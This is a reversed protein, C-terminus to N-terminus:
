IVIMNVLLITFYMLSHLVEFFAIFLIFFSCTLENKIYMLVTNIRFLRPAFKNKVHTWHKLM